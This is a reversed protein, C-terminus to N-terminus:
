AMEIERESYKRFLENLDVKCVRWLEVPTGDFCRFERDKFYSTLTPNELEGASSHTNCQVSHVLDSVRPCM